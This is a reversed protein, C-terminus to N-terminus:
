KFKRTYQTKSQFYLRLRPALSCVLFNHLRHRVWKHRRVEGLLAAAHRSSTIRRPSIAQRPGPQGVSLTVNLYGALVREREGAERAKERNWPTM